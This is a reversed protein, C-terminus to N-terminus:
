VGIPEQERVTQKVRVTGSSPRQVLIHQVHQAQVILVEGTNRAVGAEQQAKVIPKQIVIGNSLQLASQVNQAQVIHAALAQAGSHARGKVLLKMKAIGRSQKRVLTLQVLVMKAGLHAEMNHLAGAEQQVKVIQKLIVVGNQLQVAYLALAQNATAEAQQQARAGTQERARAHALIM